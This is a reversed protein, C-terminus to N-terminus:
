PNDMEDTLMKLLKKLDITWVGLTVFRYRKKGNSQVYQNYFREITQNEINDFPELCEEDSTLLHM